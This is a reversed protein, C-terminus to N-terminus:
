STARIFAPRSSLRQWYPKVSEPLGNPLFREALMISYGLNIDAASFDAGLIFTNDGIEDGVAIACQEGRNQMEAIVTPIRKEGPFARGHNVIEGLPRAFTSEAFWNWQQYIAHESTGAIPQLQGNGYRDLLYQVMACSEYMLLDNATDVLVPVKGLPSIKRWESTARFEPTFEIMEVEYDIGLEECLWIPRIGRTGPAHYFHIM